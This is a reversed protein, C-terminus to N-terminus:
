IVSKLGLLRCWYYTKYLHLCIEIISFIIAINMNNATFLVDMFLVSNSLELM